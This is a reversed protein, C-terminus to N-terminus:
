EKESLYVLCRKVHAISAFALNEIRKHSLKKLSSVLDLFVDDINNLNAEM